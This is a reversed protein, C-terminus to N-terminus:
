PVRTSPVQSQPVRAPLSQSQVFTALVDAGTASAPAGVRQRLLEMEARDFVHGPNNGFQGFLSPAVIRAFRTLDDHNIVNDGTIDVAITPMASPKGALASPLSMLAEPVPPQNHLGGSKGTMAIERMKDPGVLFFLLLMLLAAGFGGEQLMQKISAEDMGWQEQARTRFRRRTQEDESDPNDEHADLWRSTNRAADPVAPLNPDDTSNAGTAVALLSQADGPVFTGIDPANPNVINPDFGNRELQQKMNWQGSAYFQKSGTWGGSMSLWTLQALGGTRMTHCVLGSGYVGTRYTPLGPHQEHMARAIGRFYPIINERVQQPSADFDVAFYVAAGEPVGLAKGRERAHMADQYGQSEDFASIKDGRAGEYVLGLRLGAQAIDRAEKETVVKRGGDRSLYRIVTHVGGAALARYEAPSRRRGSDIIQTDLSQSM